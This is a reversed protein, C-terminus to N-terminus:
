LWKSAVTPEERSLASFAELRAWGGVDRLQKSNVDM